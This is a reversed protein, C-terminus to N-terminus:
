KERGKQLSYVTPFRGWTLHAHRSGKPLRYLLHVETLAESEQAQRM